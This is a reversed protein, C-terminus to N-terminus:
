RPRNQSVWRDVELGHLRLHQVIAEDITDEEESLFNLERWDFPGHKLMLQEMFMAVKVVIWQSSVSPTDKYSSIYFVAYGDKAHFPPLPLENIYGLWTPAPGEGIFYPPIGFFIPEKLRLKCGQLFQDIPFQRPWQDWADLWDRAITWPPKWNLRDCIEGVFKIYETRLANQEMVHKDGSENFKIERAVRVANVFRHGPSFDELSGSRPINPLLTDPSIDPNEALDALALFTIGPDFLQDYEAGLIEQMTRMARVYISDWQEWEQFGRFAMPVPIRLFSHLSLEYISQFYKAHGELLTPWDLREQFNIGPHYERSFEHFPKLKDRAIEGCFDDNEKELSDDDDISAIFKAYNQQAQKALDAPIPEGKLMEGGLGRGDQIDLRLKAYVTSLARLIGAIYAETKDGQTAQGIIMYEIVSKIRRYVELRAKLDERVKKDRIYIPAESLPKAYVGVAQSIMAVDMASSTALINLNNLLFGYATCVSVCWHHVEHALTGAKKIDTSNRGTVLDGVEKQSM